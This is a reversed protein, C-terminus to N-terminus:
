GLIKRPLASDFHLRKIGFAELTVHAAGLSVPHTPQRLRHIRVVPFQVGVPFWEGSGSKKTISTDPLINSHDYTAVCATRTVVSPKPEKYTASCVTPHNATINFPM